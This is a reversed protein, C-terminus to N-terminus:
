PCSFEPIAIATLAAEIWGRLPSLTYGLAYARPRM